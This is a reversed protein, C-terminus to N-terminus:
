ENDDKKCGIMIKGSKCNYAAEFSEVGPYMEYVTKWFGQNAKHLMNSANVFAAHAIISRENLAKLVKKEDDTLKIIRDM